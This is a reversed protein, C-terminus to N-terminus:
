NSVSGDVLPHNLIGLLRLNGGSWTSHLHYSSSGKSPDQFVLRMFRGLGTVIQLSHPAGPEEACSALPFHSRM